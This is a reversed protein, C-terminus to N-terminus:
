RGSWQLTALHDYQERPTSLVSYFGVGIDAKDEYALYEYHWKWQSATVKVTLASDSTDYMKVLTGTAMYAMWIVIMFPVVTWAIELSTSEHFKAAQFGQSKRHKVMSYFMLSFVVVGIAACIWLISMHLDYVSQSIETVGPRMNYPSRDKWSGALAVGSVSMASLALFSKQLLKSHM